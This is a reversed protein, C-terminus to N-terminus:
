FQMMAPNFPAGNVMLKGNKFTFAIVYDDGNRTIVGKDILGSIKKDVMDQAQQKADMPQITNGNNQQAFAQQLQNNMMKKALTDVMAEKVLKAPVALRGKGEIKRVMEFPNNFSGQPLSIHLNGEIKGNPLKFNFPDIQLKAGHSLLKPIEPMMAMLLRKKQQDSAVQAKQALENIRALAKSDLNNLMFHLEGPGYTQNNAFVKDLTLSLDSNVVDGEQTSGSTMDFKSLEFIVKGSQKVVLSPFSLDAKGLLLGDSNEYLNYNTKVADMKATMDKRSFNFGDINFYGNFSRMDSAIHVSSDLGHWNLRAGGKKAILTFDPVAANFSTKGLLNVFLSLNLTPATSQTTFLDKMQKLNKDPMEVVTDAYGMGLKMGDPSVIVPGHFVKLPMKFDTTEMKKTHKNPFQFHWVLNAKSKFWGREYDKIEVYLGNTRNVLEISEKIKGETVMGTVYYSGIFLVALIVVLGTVKKM